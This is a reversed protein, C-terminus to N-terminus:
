SRRKYFRKVLIGEPWCHPELAMDLRDAAVTICFSSYSDYKTDLKQVVVDFGMVQKVHRVIDAEETDPTFRTVFVEKTPLKSIVKLKSRMIPLSGITPQPRRNHERPTPKNARTRKANRVVQFNDYNVYQETEISRGVIGAYSESGPVTPAPPSVAPPSVAQPSSTDDNIIADDPSVPTEVNYNNYYTWENWERELGNNKERLDSVEHTLKSMTTNLKAIENMVSNLDPVPNADVATATPLKNIDLAVFQVATSQDTSVLLELIDNMHSRIRNAGKRTIYKKGVKSFFLKKAGEIDADSYFNCCIDMLDASSIKDLKCIAYCLLENVIIETPEPDREQSAPPASPSLPERIQQGDDNPADDDTDTHGPGLFRKKDCNPCLLEDVRSLFVDASRVSCDYCKLVPM